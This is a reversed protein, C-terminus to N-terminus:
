ANKNEKIQSYAASILISLNPNALRYYVMKGKKSGSVIGKQKLPKLQHSVASKSVGLLHALDCVCLEQDKISELIKLRSHDALLKFLISMDDFEQQNPLKHEVEKIIDEHFITCNCHEHCHKM